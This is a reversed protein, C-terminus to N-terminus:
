EKAGNLIPEAIALEGLKWQELIAEYRGSSLFEEFAAMLAERLDENGKKVAAGHYQPFLPEGAVETKGEQASVYKAITYDIVLADARGTQVQLLAANADHSALIDVGQEGAETCASNQEEALQLSLSGQAGAVTTGCLDEITVIDEPNGEQVLLGQFSKTYDVFDVAAQREVTDTFDGMAVDIRGSQLSPVLADFGTDQLKIDVELIKELDDMFEREFGVVRGGDEFLYPPVTTSGGVTLVGAEQIDSPLLEHIEGKVEDNGSSAGCATLGGWMLVAMASVALGKMTPKM